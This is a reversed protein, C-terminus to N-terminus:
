NAVTSQDEVTGDNAGAMSQLVYWASKNSTPASPSFRRTGTGGIKLSRVAGDGMSFQVIGTHKSSFYNWGGQQASGTPCNSNTQDACGGGPALGFKTPMAATAVWPWFFDRTGGNAIGGLGEGFALTNSTGDGISVMSTKSRNYYIGRYLNLNAGVGDSGSATSVKDGLAGCVAAYNTKGITVSNTGFSYAGISVGGGAPWSAAENMAFLIPGSTTSSVEQVDDSPCLFSKIRSFSVQWQPTNPNGTVWDGNIAGQPASKQNVSLNMASFGRFVNDQEVYPLLFVHVGVLQCDTFSASAFLDSASGKALPGLFGPPLVGNASEYNHASLGIQKLNNQCSMRAAAERVKQVAPLLLGILIAIIAIVVLLEILTFGRDRAKKMSAIM